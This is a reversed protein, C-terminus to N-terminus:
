SDLQQWLKDRMRTEMGEEAEPYTMSNPHPRYHAVDREIQEWCTPCESVLYEHNDHNMM